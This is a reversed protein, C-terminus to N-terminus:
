KVIQEIKIKLSKGGLKVTKSVKDIISGDRGIELNITPHSCHVNYNKEFPALISNNGQFFSNRDGHSFDRSFGVL